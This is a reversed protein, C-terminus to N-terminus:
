EAPATQTSDADEALSEAIPDSKSLVDANQQELETQTDREQAIHRYSKM